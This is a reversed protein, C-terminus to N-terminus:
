FKLDKLKSKLKDKIEQKEEKSLSKLKEELIKELQESKQHRQDLLNELGNVAAFKNQFKLLPEAVAANIKQSLDAKFQILRTQIEQKLADEFLNDLNSHLGLDYRPLEGQVTLRLDFQNINTLVRAVSHQWQHQLQKFEPVIQVSGFQMNMAANLQRNKVTAKIAIDSLATKLQIPLQKDESLIWNALQWANVGINLQDEAKGPVRHDLLASIEINKVDKIKDGVLTLRAPRGWVAPQTSFDALQGKLNGGPFIVSLHALKIAFDPLDDGQPQRAIDPKEGTTAASKKLADDLYPQLREYWYLGTKVWEDAKDGFLLQSYQVLGNKTFSYKNILRQIEQQPLTKLDGIKQRWVSIEQKIKDRQTKILELDQRLAQKIKKLEEISQKAAAIKEAGDGKANFKLANIQEEYYKLKQEDPLQKIIVDWQALTKDYDAAMQQILAPTELKEKKLIDKIDPLEIGQLATHTATKDAEASDIKKIEGSTTRPTNFRIGEVAMDDIIWKLRLLPKVALHFSIDEIQVANNMPKRPDTVQLDIMKFGLPILSVTAKHLDVKAGVAVTGRTEVVYKVLTGAFFYVASLLVGFIVLLLILLTKIKRLKM